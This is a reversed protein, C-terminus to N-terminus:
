IRFWRINRSVDDKDKKDKKDEDFESWTIFFYYYIFFILKNKKGKNNKTKKTKKNKVKSNTISVCYYCVIIFWILRPPTIMPPLPPLVLKLIPRQILPPPPPPLSFSPRPTRPANALQVMKQFNEAYAAAAAPDSAYVSERSLQGKYKAIWDKQDYMFGDQDSKVKLAPESTIRGFYRTIQGVPVVVGTTLVSGDGNLISVKGFTKEPFQATSTASVLFASM